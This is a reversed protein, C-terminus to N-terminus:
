IRTAVIKGSGRPRRSLERNWAIRKGALRGLEALYISNINDQRIYGSQVCQLKM